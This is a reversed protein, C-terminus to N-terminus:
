LAFACQDGLIIPSKTCGVPASEDHPLPSAVSWPSDLDLQTSLDHWKSTKSKPGIGESGQVEMEVCKLQASAVQM